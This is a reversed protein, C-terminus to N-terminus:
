LSLQRMVHPYGSDVCYFYNLSESKELQTVRKRQSIIDGRQITRQRTPQFPEPRGKDNPKKPTVAIVEVVVVLKAALVTLVKLADDISASKDTGKGAIENGSSIITFAEAKFM